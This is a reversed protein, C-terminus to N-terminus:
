ASNSLVRVAASGEECRDLIPCYRCGPGGFRPLDEGTVWSRRAANVLDRVTAATKEALSVTPVERLREGTKVSVAEVVAPLVGRDLAWLLSYFRLQPLPDFLDGTKWDVKYIHEDGQDIIWLGDDAAQLGNPKPGPAMFMQITDAIKNAHAM